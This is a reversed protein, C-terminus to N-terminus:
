DDREKAQGKVRRRLEERVLDRQIIYCEQRPTGAWSASPSCLYEVAAVVQRLDVDDLQALRERMHQSDEETWDPPTVDHM